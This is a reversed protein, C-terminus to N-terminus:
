YFNSGLYDLIGEELLMIKESDEITDFVEKQLWKNMALVVTSNSIDIESFYYVPQEMEEKEKNDSIVYGQVKINMREFLRYLRKGIKGAGYVYINERDRCKNIFDFVEQLDELRNKTMRTYTDRNKQVADDFEAILKSNYHEKVMRRYKTMHEDSPMYKWTLFLASFVNQVYKRTNENVEFASINIDAELEECTIREAVAASLLVRTAEADTFWSKQKHNLFTDHLVVVAGNKLYPLAVIFDLLEGPLFHATDLILFDIDKGIVDIYDPLIGICMKHRPPNELIEICEEALYGVKKNSETVSRKNIDISYVETAEKLEDVCKLVVATTGGDAVGVEVIKKPQYKKILGCLFSLQEGSMMSGNKSLESLIETPKLYAEINM